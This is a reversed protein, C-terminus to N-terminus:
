TVDVKKVAYAICKLGEAKAKVIYDYPDPTDLTPDNDIWVISNEDMACNMDDTIITKTYDLDSGFMEISATGKNPSISAQCTVLDGYTLSYTGTYDGASDVDATRGSFPKYYFTKKNRKCMKM